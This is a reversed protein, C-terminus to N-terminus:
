GEPGSSFQGGPVARSNSGTTSMCTPITVDLRPPWPESAHGLLSVCVQEPPAVLVDFLSM